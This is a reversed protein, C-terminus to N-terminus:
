GTLIINLDIFSITANTGAEVSTALMTEDATPSACLQLATPSCSVRLQLHRGHNSGTSSEPTRVKGNGWEDSHSENAGLCYCNPRSHFLANEKHTEKISILLLQVDSWSIMFRLSARSRHSSTANAASYSNKVYYLFPKLHDLKALAVVFQGSICYLRNEM